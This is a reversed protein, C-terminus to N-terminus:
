RVWVVWVWVGHDGLCLVAGHDGLCLVAGHDGLCPVWARCGLVAGSCLVWGGLYRFPLVTGVVSSVTPVSLYDKSM